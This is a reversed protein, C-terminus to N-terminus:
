GFYKQLLQSKLQKLKENQESIDQIYNLIDEFFNNYKNM